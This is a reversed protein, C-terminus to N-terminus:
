PEARRAVMRERLGALDRRGLRLRAIPLIVGDEIAVHQRQDRAFVALARQCRRGPAKRALGELVMAMRENEREHEAGLVGLIREIEDEGTCRRRLLPFLDEEEDALHVPLVDRLFAAAGHREANAVAGGAALRELLTCVGRVQVHVGALWDLPDELALAAAAIM